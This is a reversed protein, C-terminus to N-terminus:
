WAHSFASNHQYDILLNLTFTLFQWAPQLGPAERLAPFCSTYPFIRSKQLSTNRRWGEAM